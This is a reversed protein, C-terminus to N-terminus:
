PPPSPAAPRRHRSALACRFAAGARSGFPPRPSASAYWARAARPWSQWLHPRRTRGHRAAIRPTYGIGTMQSVQTHVAHARYRRPTHVAAAAQSDVAKLAVKTARRRRRVIASRLGGDPAQAKRTCAWTDTRVSEASEIMMAMAIGFHALDRVSPRSSGARPLGSGQGSPRPRETARSANANALAWICLALLKRMGAPRRRRYRQQPRHPSTIGLRRTDHCARRRLDHGSSARPQVVAGPLYLRRTGQIDGASVSVLRSRPRRAM